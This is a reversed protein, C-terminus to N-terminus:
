GRLRETAANLDDTSVGGRLLYAEVGGHRARLHELM